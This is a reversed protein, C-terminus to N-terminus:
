ARVTGRFLKQHEIFSFIDEESYDLLRGVFYEYTDDFPRRGAACEEHIWFFAEARWENGPLTYCVYQIPHLSKSNTFIHSTRIIKGNAVFPAFTKEPIVQESIEQGPIIAEFFVALHKQGALMLELERGEHPGIMSSDYCFFGPKAGPNKLEQPCPPKPWRATPLNAHSTIM